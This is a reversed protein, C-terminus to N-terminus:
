EAPAEGRARRELPREWVPRAGLSARLDADAAALQARAGDLAPDAPDSFLTQRVLSLYDRTAPTELRSLGAVRTQIEADSRAIAPGGREAVLVALERGEHLALWEKRPGGTLRVVVDPRYLFVFAGVLVALGVEMSFLGPVLALLLLVIGVAVVVGALPRGGNAKVRTYLQSWVAIAVGVIAVAAVIKGVALLPNPDLWDLM